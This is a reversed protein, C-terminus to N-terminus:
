FPWLLCVKLGKVDVIDCLQQFNQICDSAIDYSPISGLEMDYRYLFKNLTNNIKGNFNQQFHDFVVTELNGFDLPLVLYSAANPTLNNAIWCNRFLEQLSSKNKIDYYQNLVSVFLSKGFRRPHLSVIAKANLQELRPIYLTNDKFFTGEGFQL